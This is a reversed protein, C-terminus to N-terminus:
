TACTRQDTEVESHDCQVKCEGGEASIENKSCPKCEGAKEEYGASCVVNPVSEAPCLLHGSSYQLDWEGPPLTGSAIWSSESESPTVHRTADRRIMALKPKTSTKSVNITFVANTSSTTNQQSVQMYGCVPKVVCTGNQPSYGELCAVNALEVIECFSTFTEVGDTSDVTYVAQWDGLSLNHESHWVGNSGNPELPEPKSRIILNPKFETATVDVKLRINDTGANDIQVYSLNGCKVPM